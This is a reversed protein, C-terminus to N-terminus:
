IQPEILGFNDDNTLYLVNVQNTDTNLFFFFRDHSLSLQRAAENVTMPRAIERTIHTAEPYNSNLSAQSVTSSSIKKKMRGRSRRSKIKEKFKKAQRNVKEIATEVSVYLDPNSGDGHITLGDAVVNIETLYRKKEEKLRVRASFVRQLYRNIKQLKKRIHKDLDATVPVHTGSVEVQMARDGDKSIKLL